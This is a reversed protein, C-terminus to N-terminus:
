IKDPHIISVIAVATAIVAVIVLAAINHMRGEGTNLASAPSHDIRGEYMDVATAM